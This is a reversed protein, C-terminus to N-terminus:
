QECCLGFGILVLSMALVINSYVISNELGIVPILRSIVPIMFVTFMIPTALVFGQVVGSLGLNQM